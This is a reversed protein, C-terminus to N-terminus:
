QELPDGTDKYEKRLEKLKGKLQAIVKDYQPKNYVNVLEHPDEDLNYLEWCSDPQYGMRQLGYYYILKYKDTRIGYHSPRREQHTWYHYYMAERWDDPTNGKLNERFSRGQMYGPIDTQAYDLLLEAFDINLIIDDVTTAPKIEKPYRIIFPMRASEELMFRKDFLNHEGLFYGQDSTYIVVTEEAQGTQELYSMVRGINDDIGAVGRLYDKIFKQYTAQRKKDPNETNLKLPPPAYRKPRDLYRNMLIELPWGRFVKNKPSEDWLLDKPEALKEGKYLWRYRDAGYFPEHVSKYHLMMCYPKENDKQNKLWNLAQSTIVDVSHGSYEKGEGEWNMDKEYLIPNHYRGQGHLVNYYNFGSPQSKLHWKGVIATQYGAEQLRKALNDRDPDLRGRLTKAGNLHGYQGTLISARSPVSISNTCFCNQLLAGQRRLRDINQTPAYESLRSGYCGWAQSTHDDAMIFLINPREEEQQPSDAAFGSNPLLSVTALGVLSYIFRNACPNPTTKQPM